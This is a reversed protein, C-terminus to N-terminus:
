AQESQGEVAGTLTLGTYLLAILLAVYPLKLLVLPAAVLLFAPPSGWWLRPRGTRSLRAILVACGIATLAALWPGTDGSASWASRALLLATATPILRQLWHMVREHVPEDRMWCLIAGIGAILTGAVALLVGAQMLALALCVLGVLGLIASALSLAITPAGREVIRPLVARAIPGVVWRDFWRPKTAVMAALVARGRMALARSDREIGHGAGATGDPLLMRMAGAQATVRLLTSPFDYDRPLAAVDDIRQPRLRALGAWVSDAGIREWDHPARDAPAVLLTDGGEQALLGVVAETTVVGDAMVVLRALPHLKESAEEATRVVDVAIGRRSIRNVAGLLEPTLRAVVVLIQGAGAGILLRAQYEVLTGGGFPLTAALAHPRDLSDATAFILGALM